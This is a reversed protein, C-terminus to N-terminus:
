KRLRRSEILRGRLIVRSVRPDIEKTQYSPNASILQVVGSPDLRVFKIVWASWGEVEVAYIDRERTPDGNVPKFIAIEGDYVESVMSDGSVRMTFVKMKKYEENVQIFGDTEGEYGMDAGGARIINYIPVTHPEYLVIPEKSQLKEIASATSCIDDGLHKSLILKTGIQKARDKAALIMLEAAEEDTLNLNKAIEAIKDDSPPNKIGAMVARFHEYGIGCAEAKQKQNASSGLKKQILEDLRYIFM